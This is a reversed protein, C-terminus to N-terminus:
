PQPEPAAQLAAAPKPFHITPMKFQIETEFPIDCGLHMSTGFTEFLDWAQWESWGDNEAQERRRRISRRLFAAPLPAITANLADDTADMVAFGRETVKVRIYDNINFSQWAEAPSAPPDAALLDVIQRLTEAELARWAHGPELLRELNAILAARDARM